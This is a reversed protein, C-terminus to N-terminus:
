VLKSKWHYMLVAAAVSVNLSDVAEGEMPIIVNTYGQHLWHSSLGGSEEGLVIASKGPWDLEFMSASDKHMHTIYIHFGHQELLSQIELSTGSVIPVEFIAGTANRMVNPGYLDLVVDAFFVAAMGAAQATRLIAGANGPKEIGEVVLVGRAGSLLAGLEDLKWHRQKFLGVHAETGSRYAIKEFVKSGAIYRQEFSQMWHAQAANEKSWLEVGIWGTALARQIERAGEVVCLGSQKRARSKTLLQVIEKVKPNSTSTILDNM